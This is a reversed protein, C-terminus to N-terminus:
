GANRRDQALRLMHMCQLPLGPELLTSKAIVKDSKLAFGAYLKDCGTKRMCAEPHKRTTDPVHCILGSPLHEVKSGKRLITSVTTDSSPPSSMATFLAPILKLLAASSVGSLSHSMVKLRLM